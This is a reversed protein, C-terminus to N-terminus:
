TKGLLSLTSSNLMRIRGQKWSSKGQSGSPQGIARTGGLRLGLFCSTFLIFFRTLTEKQPPPTATVVKDYGNENYQSRCGPCRGDFETKLKQWCLLCVQLENLFIFEVHWCHFHVQYGCQCPIFNKDTVDLEEVCLPCFEEGAAM